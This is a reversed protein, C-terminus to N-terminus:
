RASIRQFYNSNITYYDDEEEILVDDLFDFCTENISEILQNKFVGKSKAFSELESQSVSFNSKTFFEITTIHIPKFAIDNIYVSNKVENGKQTIEIKIEENNIEETKITINENEFDDKLYENM